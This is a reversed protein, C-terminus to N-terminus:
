KMHGVLSRHVFGKLGPRTSIHYWDKTNGLIHVTDGKQLTHLIEWSTEPGKRVNARLAAVKGEAPPQPLELDGIELEKIFPLPDVAGKNGYLGFHLHPATTRANGTNGVFGITDGRRVKALQGVVISDLHCYYQSKGGFGERIWVQKGGLGRNGTSTVRGDTAALVPTGRPAFIDVGQHSRKGGDRQAGWFSQIARDTVNSVPFGYLPRSGMELLFDTAQGLPSQVVITYAASSPVPYTVSTLNSVKTSLLPKEDIQVPSKFVDVFANIPGRNSTLGLTLERGEPIYTTYQHALPDNAGFTGRESYPLTVTLSDMKAKEFANLWNQHGLHGDPFNRAYKERESPQVVIDTIKQVEKCACISWIM